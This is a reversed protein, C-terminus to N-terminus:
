YGYTWEEEEEDEEKGPRYYSFAEAIAGIATKEKHSRAFLETEAARLFAEFIKKVKEDGYREAWMKYILLMETYAELNKQGVPFRDGIQGMGLTGFVFQMGEPIGREKVNNLQTEKIKSVNRVLSTIKRVIRLWIKESSEPM